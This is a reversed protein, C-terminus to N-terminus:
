GKRKYLVVHGYKRLVVWHASRFFSKLHEMTFDHHYTLNYLLLPDHFDILAYQVSQPLQFSWAKTQYSREFIKFFAYLERRQSLPALFVTTAVVAANKPIMDVLEQRHRTMISSEQLMYRDMYRVKLHVAAINFTILNLVMILCLLILRATKNGFYGLVQAAALFIFPAIPMVYAFKIYHEQPAASLLHQLIIPSILFLTGPALYPIYAFPGFIASLWSLNLPTTLGQWMKIPHTLISLLIGQFSGGWAGYDHVIYYPHLSGPPRGAMLPMFVFVLIYFSALAFVFPILGWRLKDKKTFFGHISFALVVLPLNEKILVLVASCIMFGAWREKTYFYYALVLFVPSLSEFDFEYTLGFVNAPYILYLWLFLFAAPGGLKEKVLLYLVFSAGAYSATKLFVLVLPHAFFNYFPVLLCAIINAHNAFFECDFLSVHTSGHALDWMAQSFYALDWDYYGFHFFKYSLIAAWFCFAALSLVAAAWFGKDKVM